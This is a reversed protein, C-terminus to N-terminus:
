SLARLVGGMTLVEVDGARCISEACFRVSGRGASTSAARCAASRGLTREQNNFVYAPQSGGGSASYQEVVTRHCYFVRRAM